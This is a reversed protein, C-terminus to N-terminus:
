YDNMLGLDLLLKLVEKKHKIYHLIHFLERELMQWRLLFAPQVRTEAWGM